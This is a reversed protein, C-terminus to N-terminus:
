EFVKIKLLKGGYTFVGNFDGTPPAPPPPDVPGIPVGGFWKQLNHFSYTGVWTLPWVLNISPNMISGNGHQCGVGHGTEHTELGAFLRWDSPAYGIDLRGNITQNCTDPQPFENWGIVSGSLSEFRKSIECPPTPGGSYLLYRVAIGIEAYCKSAEALARDIYAKITPPAQSIDIAVRISHTESGNAVDPDCGPVPWSGQGTAFDRMSAVAVNLRADGFDFSCDAPPAHDPLPCRPVSIMATTVPGVDGDPIVDRGHIIKSLRNFNADAQQWAFVAEIVPRDVVTLKLIDSKKLNKGSEFRWFYGHRWLFAILAEQTM